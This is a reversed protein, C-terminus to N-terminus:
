KRLHQRLAAIAEDYGREEKVRRFEAKKREDRVQRMYGM